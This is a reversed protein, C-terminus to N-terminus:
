QAIRGTDKSALVPQGHLWHQIDEALQAASAYRRSPEKRLAMLVINDLDGHLRRALKAASVQRSYALDHMLAPTDKASRLVM